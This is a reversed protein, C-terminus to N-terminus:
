VEGIGCLVGDGVVVRWEGYFLYVLGLVFMVLGDLKNCGSVVNL